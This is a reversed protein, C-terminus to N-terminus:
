EEDEDKGEAKGISYYLTPICEQEQKTYIKNKRDNMFTLFASMINKVVNKKNCHKISEALIAIEDAKSNKESDGEQDCSLDSKDKGEDNSDNFGSQM